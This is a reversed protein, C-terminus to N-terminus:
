YNLIAKSNRYMFELCNFFRGKIGMHWLKYLLAERCVTDRDFAMAYDVFCSYLRGKEVHHTYRTWAGDTCLLARDTCLPCKHSPVRNMAHRGYMSRAINATTGFCPSPTYIGGIIPGWGGIIAFHM